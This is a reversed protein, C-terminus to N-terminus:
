KSFGPIKLAMNPVQVFEEIFPLFIQLLEQVLQVLDMLREFLRIAEEIFQYIDFLIGVMKAVGMAVALATSAGLTAVGAAVQPGIRTIAYNILEALKNVAFGRVGRAVQASIKLITEMVGSLYGAGSTILSLELVRARAKSGTEGDWNALENDAVGQIHDAIPEIADGVQKWMAASADMRNENGTVVGIVDEVPQFTTILFELLSGTLWSMPNLGAQGKGWKSFGKNNEADADRVDTEIKSYSSKISDWNLKMEGNRMRQSQRNKFDKTANFLDVRGQTKREFYGLEHSERGDRMPEKGRMSNWAGRTLDVGLTTAKPIKLGQRDLTSLLADDVHTVNGEENAGFDGQRVVDDGTLDVMDHDSEAM